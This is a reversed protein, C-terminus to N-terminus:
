KIETQDIFYGIDRKATGWEDEFMGLDDGMWGGMLNVTRTGREITAYCHGQPIGDHTLNLTVVGGADLYSDLRDDIGPNACRYLLEGIDFGSDKVVRLVDESGVFAEFQELTMPTAAIEELIGSNMCLFAYDTDDGPAAQACLCDGFTELSYVRGDTDLEVVDGEVLTWAHIHEKGDPGTESTFIDGIDLMVGADNMFCKYELFSWSYVDRSRGLNWAKDESVFWARGHWPMHSKDEAYFVWAGDLGEEPYGWSPADKDPYVWFHVANNAAPDVEKVRDIAREETMALATTAFLLLTLLVLLFSAFSQKAKM